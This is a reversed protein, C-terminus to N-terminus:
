AGVAFLLVSAFREAAAFLLVSAFREAASSLLISAFCVAAASLLVSAFRGAFASALASDFSRAFASILDSASRASSSLLVPVSTLAFESPFFSATCIESSLTLVSLASLSFESFGSSLISAFRLVFESAKLSLTIRAM